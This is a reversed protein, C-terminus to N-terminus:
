RGSSTLRRFVDVHKALYDAYEPDNIKVLDFYEGKYKGKGLKVLHSLTSCIYRRVKKIDRM